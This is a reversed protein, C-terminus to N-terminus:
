ALTVQSGRGGDEFGTIVLRIRRVDCSETGEGAIADGEPESTEWKQSGKHNCQAYCTPGPYGEYKLSVQNISKSEDEVKM